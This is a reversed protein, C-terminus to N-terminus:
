DRQKGLQVGALKQEEPSLTVLGAIWRILDRIRTLM